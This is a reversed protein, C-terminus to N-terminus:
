FPPYPVFIDLEMPCSLSMGSSDGMSKSSTGSDYKRLIRQLAGRLAMTPQRLNHVTAFAVQQQAAKQRDQARSLDVWATAALRALAQLIQRREATFHNVGPALVTM